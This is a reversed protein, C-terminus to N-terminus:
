AKGHQRRREDITPNARRRPGTSTSVHVGCRKLDTMRAVWPRRPPDDAAHDQGMGREVADLSNRPTALAVSSPADPASQNVANGNVLEPSSATTETFSSPNLHVTPDTHSHSRRQLRHTAVPEFTTSHGVAVDRPQTMIHSAIPPTINDLPRHRTCLQSYCGSNPFANGRHKIIALSSAPLHPLSARSPAAM